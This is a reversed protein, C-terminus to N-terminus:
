KHFSKLKKTNKNGQSYVNLKVLFEFDFILFDFISGNIYFKSISAYKQNVNIKTLEEVALNSLTYTHSSLFNVQHPKRFTFTAM